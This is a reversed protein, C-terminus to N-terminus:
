REVGEDRDALRERVVVENAMEVRDQYPECKLERIAGRRLRHATSCVGHRLRAAHRCNRQLLNGNRPIFDGPRM